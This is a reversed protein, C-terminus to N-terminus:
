YVIWHRLEEEIQRWFVDEDVYSTSINTGSATTESQSKVGLRSGGKQGRQLLFFYNAAKLATQKLSSPMNAGTFGSRLTAKYCCGSKFKCGQLRWLGNVILYDCCKTERWEPESSEGCGCNNECCKEELKILELPVNVAPLAKTPFCNTPCFNFEYEKECLPQNCIEEFRSLVQECIDELIDDACDNTPSM